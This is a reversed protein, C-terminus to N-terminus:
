HVFSPCWKHKMMLWKLSADTRACASLCLSNFHTMTTEIISRDISEISTSNPNFQNVGSISVLTSGLQSLACLVLTEILISM